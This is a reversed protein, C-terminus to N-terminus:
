RRGDTYGLQLLAQETEADNKMKVGVPLEEKKLGELTSQFRNAM